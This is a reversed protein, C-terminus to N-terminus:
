FKIPKKLLFWTLMYQTGSQTNLKKIRPSLIIAFLVAIYMIYKEEINLNLIRLLFFLALCIAISIVLKLLFAKIM